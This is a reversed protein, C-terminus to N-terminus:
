SYMVGMKKAFDDDDDEDYEGVADGNEGDYLEFDEGGAQEYDSEGDRQEYAESEQDVGDEVVM